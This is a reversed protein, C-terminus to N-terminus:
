SEGAEKQPVEQEGLPVPEDDRPYASAPVTDGASAAVSDREPDREREGAGPGLVSAALPTSKFRGGKAPPVGSSPTGSSSRAARRREIVNLLLPGPSASRAAPVSGGRSRASTSPPADPPIVVVQPAQTGGPTDTPTVDPATASRTVARPTPSSPPADVGELDLALTGAATEQALRADIAALAETESAPSGPITPLGAVPPLTTLPERPTAPASRTRFFNLGQAVKPPLALGPTKPTATALPQSVTATIPIISPPKKLATLRAARQAEKLLHIEKEAEPPVYASASTRMLGPDFEDFIEEGILEELVDELTIIGVPDLDPKFGRLFRHAGERGLVADLPM